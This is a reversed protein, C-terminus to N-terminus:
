KEGIFISSVMKNSLDAEVVIVGAFLLVMCVSVSLCLGHSYVCVYMATKEVCVVVVPVCLCLCPAVM